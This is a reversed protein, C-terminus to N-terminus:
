HRRMKAPLLSYDRTGVSVWATPICPSGRSHKGLGLATQSALSRPTKQPKKAVM